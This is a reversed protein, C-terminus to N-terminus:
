MHSVFKVLNTVFNPDVPPSIRTVLVTDPQSAWLHWPAVSISPTNEGIVSLLTGVCAAINAFEPKVFIGVALSVSCDFIGTKLLFYMKLHNWKGEAINLTDCSLQDTIWDNQFLGSDYKM